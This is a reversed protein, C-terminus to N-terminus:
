GKINGKVLEKLLVILRAKVAKAVEGRWTSANALFYMVIYHGSDAYYNDRISSLSGMADIYPIAGFYPKPWHRRIILSMAHLNTTEGILKLRTEMLVDSQAKLESNLESNLEKSM